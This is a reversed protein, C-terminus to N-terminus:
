HEELPFSIITSKGSLVPAIGTRMVVAIFLQYHGKGDMDVLDYDCISGSIKRTKWTEALGLGDWALSHIESSTYEKFNRLFRSTTSLNRNILLEPINNKTTNVIIRSPLYYREETEYISRSPNLVVFNMTEGFPDDSKWRLENKGSLVKFKNSDDIIVLEAAKDADLDLKAFNFVNANPPLALRKSQKLEKGLWEMQYVASDFVADATRKQGILVRKDGMFTLRLYWPLHQAVRIFESGNWKLVFSDLREAAFNSIYVEPVGDGDMDGIDVSLQNYTSPGKIHKVETLEEGSLRYIWVDTQDIFVIEKQGDNDLDAIAMGRMVIPFERSKWFDERKAKPTFQILGQAPESTKDGKGSLLIREPHATAVTKSPVSPTSVTTQSTSRGFVALNVSEAFEVVKPIVEDLTKSQSFLSIPPQEVNVSVLRADLSSSSGLVTISGFLVYDAKLKRGLDKASSENLSAANQELAGRVTQKELVVVKQDWSMRSALMDFIGDQLYAIDQPGHVAFPVIAVKKPEAGWSSPLGACLMAILFYILSFVKKKM